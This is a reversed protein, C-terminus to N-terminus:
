LIITFPLIYISRFCNTASNLLQIFFLFVRYGVLIVSHKAFQPIDEIFYKIM